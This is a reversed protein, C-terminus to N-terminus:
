QALAVRYLAHDDPADREYVVEGEVAYYADLWPAGACVNTAITQPADADGHYRALVGTGNPPALTTLIAGDASRRFDNGVLSAVRQAELESPDAVWLESQGSTPPSPEALIELPVGVPLGYFACANCSMVLQPTTGERWRFFSTSAAIRALWFDADETTGIIMMGTPPAIAHGDSRAFWRSQEPLQVSVLGIAADTVFLTRGPPLEGLVQDAGTDRRRLTLTDDDDATYLLLDPEAAVLRGRDLEVRGTRSTRDFSRVSGDPMKAFVEHHDRFVLGDAEYRVGAILVTSVTTGDVRRLEVIDALADDDASPRHLLLADDDRAVACAGRVLLEPSDDRADVLQMLDGDDSCATVVDGWTSAYPTQFVFPEVREGCRDVVRTQSSAELARDDADVQHTSVIVDDGVRGVVDVREDPALELLRVPAATGCIEDFGAHEAPATDHCASALVAFALVLRM